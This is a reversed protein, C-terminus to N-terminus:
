ELHKCSQMEDLDESLLVIDDPYETLSDEPLDHFWTLVDGSPNKHCFSVFISLSCCRQWNTHRGVM